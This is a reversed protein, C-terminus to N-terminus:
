LSDIPTKGYKYNDNLIIWEDSDLYGRVIFLNTAEDPGLNHFEELNKLLGNLSYIYQGTKQNVGLIASDQNPIKTQNTM